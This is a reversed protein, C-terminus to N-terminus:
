GEKSVVKKGIMNFARAFGIKLTGCTIINSLDIGLTVLTQSVEPSFGTLIVEAGLMKAANVTKIIHRAVSTDVVPVGTLDLIAVEIENEVISSLLNEIIHQSRVTDIIGVLPLLLVSDWIKIVPTSLELITQRQANMEREMRAEKEIDIMYEFGGTVNGESDKFASANVAIATKHGKCNVENRTNVPMDSEIAAKVPCDQPSCKATDLVEYCKKGAIEDANVGLWECGVPSLFLINYDNDIALVPAPSQDFIAVKSEATIDDINKRTMMLNGEQLHTKIYYNHHNITYIIIDNTFYFLYRVHHDIRLLRMWCSGWLLGGM